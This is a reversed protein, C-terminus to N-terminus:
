KKKRKKMKFTLAEVLPGKKKASSFGEILRDITFDSLITDKFEEELQLKQKSGLSVEKFFKDM